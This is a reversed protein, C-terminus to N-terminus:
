EMEIIKRFPDMPAEMNPMGENMTSGCDEEEHGYDGGQIDSLLNTGEMGQNDIIDILTNEVMKRKINVEMLVKEISNCITKEDNSSTNSWVVLSNPVKKIAMKKGLGGHLFKEGLSVYPELPATMNSQSQIHITM